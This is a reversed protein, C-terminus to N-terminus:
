GMFAGWGIKTVSAPIITAKCGVILENSSTEIIANCDNRSDYVPNGEAVKVEKLGVCGSLIYDYIKEVSSPITVSTLGTCGSFAYKGIETVSDPITIENLGTCGKFASFGIETVSDPIVVSTLGACDEFACSDIKTVSDPIIAVGDKIELKAM